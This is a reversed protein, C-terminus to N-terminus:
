ECFCASTTRWNLLQLILEQKTAAYKSEGWLNKMEQPDNEMDFLQGQDSDVFHVLKWKKTRLM